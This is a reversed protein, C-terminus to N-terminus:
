KLVVAVIELLAEEEVRKGALRVVEVGVDLVLAIVLDVHGLEEDARVHGDVPDVSAVDHRGKPRRAEHGRRARTTTRTSVYYFYSQCV